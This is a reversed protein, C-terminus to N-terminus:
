VLEQSYKKVMESLPLPQYDGAHGAQGFQTMRQAVVKKMAERAPKNYDRPDFKEPTEAFVKRIAGTMALRNDTDVNVKRVGNKIGLQIEEVPVGWTPKLRGGYQNIIDQLEQPVSSSGHMVLHVNPLRKHIEILVDMKLTEGTPKKTFKYAGHSTGIAIALADLGTLKVFEEAQAPDTLHSLGDLGAGHGDEIGGLCGIEGEVTVGKAHAMEVVEKTVKVNYEFSSPTKGDAELSGDMMVSTFGLDIASKCTEFSNGHDLHMVLPIEPYLEAAALMLHYLFKDQSYSRAGRSAQIIVPSNTEKAAEMISQIQEMNNVNFAGVGYGGKAAEDLVQRMSVLPM